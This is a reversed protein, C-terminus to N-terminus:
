SGEHELLAQFVLKLLLHKLQPGLYLVLAQAEM